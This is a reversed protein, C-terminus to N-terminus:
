KIDKCVTTSVTTVKNGKVETVTHTDCVTKEGGSVSLLEDASLERINKVLESTEKNFLKM